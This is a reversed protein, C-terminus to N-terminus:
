VVAPALIPKLSCDSKVLLELEKMIKSGYGRSQLEIRTAIRVIRLGYCKSLIVNNTINYLMWSILNGEKTSQNLDIGGEVAAQIVTCINGQLDKLVFVYQKKSDLLIKLDNPSNRYHCSAFITFIESLLKQDNLLINKNIMELKFNDINPLINKSSEISRNDNFFM